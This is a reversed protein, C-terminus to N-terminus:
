LYNIPRTQREKPDTILTFWLLTDVLSASGFYALVHCQSLTFNDRDMGRLCVPPSSTCSWETKVEARSPHSHDIERGLRKAWRFSCMYASSTLSPLSWFRDPNNELVSFRQWSEFLPRGLWCSGLRGASHEREFSEIEGRQLLTVSFVGLKEACFQAYSLTPANGTTLYSSYM